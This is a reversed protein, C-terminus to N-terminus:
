RIVGDARMSRLRTKRYRQTTLSQVDSPLFSITTTVARPTFTCYPSLRPSWPLTDLRVWRTSTWIRLGREDAYPERVDIMRTIKITRGNSM